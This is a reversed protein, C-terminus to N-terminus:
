AAAGPRYKALERIEDSTDQELKDNAKILVRAAAARAEKSFRYRRPGDAHLRSAKQEGSRVYPATRDEM